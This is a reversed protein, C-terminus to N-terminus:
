FRVGTAARFNHLNAKIGQIDRFHAYQWEGRVFGNAGVAVDVGAGGAFGFAYGSRRQPGYTETFTQGTNIVTVDRQGSRMAEYHAIAVGATVFPLFSGVTYGARGRLTFLDKIDLSSRGTMTVIGAEGALGTLGTLDAIGRTLSDRSNMRLNMRTYDAEFGLVVEDYQYNYGGFVGFNKGRAKGAPLAIWSSINNRNEFANLRLERALFTQLSRGPNAQGTAAGAFGGFYGGQWSEVPTMGHHANQTGRLPGFLDAAQAPAAVAIAAVAMGALISARM